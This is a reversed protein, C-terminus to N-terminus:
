VGLRAGNERIVSETTKRACENKQWDFKKKIWYHTCKYCGGNKFFFNQTQM